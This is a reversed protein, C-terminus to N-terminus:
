FKRMLPMSVEKTAFTTLPRVSCTPAAQFWLRCVFEGTSVSLLGALAFKPLGIVCSQLASPLL